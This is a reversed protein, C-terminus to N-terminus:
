KYPVYLGLQQQQLRFCCRSASTANNVLMSPRACPLNLRLGTWGPGTWRCSSSAMVAGTPASSYRSSTTFFYHWSCRRLLQTQIPKIYKWPQSPRAIQRGSASLADIRNQRKLQVNSNLQAGCHDRIGPSREAVLLDRSYAAPAERCPSQQKRQGAAEKSSTPCVVWMLLVCAAPAGQEDMHAGGLGCRRGELVVQVSVPAEAWRQPERVGAAHRRGRLSPGVKGAVDEALGHGVCYSVAVGGGLGEQLVDKGRLSVQNDRRFSKRVTSVFGEPAEPVHKGMGKVDLHEDHPPIGAREDRRAVPLCVLALRDHAGECPLYHPSVGHFPEIVFKRGEGAGAGVDGGFTQLNEGLDEARLIDVHQRM